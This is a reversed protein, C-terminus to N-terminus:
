QFSFMMKALSRSASKANGVTVTAIATAIVDVAETTVTLAVVATTAIMEVTMTQSRRQIMMAMMM